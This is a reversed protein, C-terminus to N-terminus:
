ISSSSFTLENAISITHRCPIMECWRDPHSVPSFIVFRRIACGVDWHCGCLTGNFGWHLAVLPVPCSMEGRRMFLTAVKSSIRGQGSLLISLLFSKCPPFFSGAFSMVVAGSGTGEVDGKGLATGTLILLVSPKVSIADPLSIPSFSLSCWQPHQLSRGKNRPPCHACGMWWHCVESREM